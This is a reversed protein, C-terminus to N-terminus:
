EDKEEDPNDAAIKEQEAEFADGAKLTIPRRVNGDKEWADKVPKTPAPLALETRFREEDDYQPTVAGARVAVGYADAKQKAKEFDIVKSPVSSSGSGDSPTQVPGSIRAEKQRQREDREWDGGTLLVTERAKTSFGAEVRKEAAAVANEENIQGMADGIWDCGLYAMRVLPDNFFGPASLRGRAVAESIVMEWIPQCYVRALWTRSRMFFRWAELLAAQAASYSATFHKVLLEYPLELAVGVQEAMARLFAEAATNPRKPDAFVVDENPFLGLINGSGLEMGDTNIQKAAATGTSTQPTLNAQGTQSKIFVTFLSSVVAAHLESDTYNSIQKLLEIVTALDPVGRTQGPRLKRYIHLVKRRGNSDFADLKVWERKKVYRMNGPHFKAVHYRVPAGEEGKEVGAVLNDNDHAFNENCVRDGEIFQVRLTYPNNPRAKRPLNVFIDGASLVSRLVLDQSDFFNHGCALDFDEGSTALRFEREAAREWADAQEETLGKLIDRDISARPKLGSGVICTVKTNIAGAALPSNRELDRSRDRLIALDPLIASDADGDGPKWAATQRRDRRGGTYGGAIALMARAQLREAGRVPNFYSVFRDLLTQKVEPFIM